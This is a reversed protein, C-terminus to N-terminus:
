AALWPIPSSGIVGLLEDLERMILSLLLRSGSRKLKPPDRLRDM